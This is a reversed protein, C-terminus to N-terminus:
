NRSIIFYVKMIQKPTKKELIHSTNATENKEKHNWLM